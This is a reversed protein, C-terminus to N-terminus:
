LVGAAVASATVFTDLNESWESEQTTVLGVAANNSFPLGGSAARLGPPVSLGPPPRRSPGIPVGLPALAPSPPHQALRPSGGTGSSLRVRNSGIPGFPPSAQSIIPSPTGSGGGGSAPIASLESVGRAISHSNEALWGSTPRELPHQVRSAGGAGVDAAAPLFSSFSLAGSPTAPEPQGWRSFMSGTRGVHSASSATATQEGGLRFDGRMGQGHGSASAYGSGHGNHYHQQQHQDLSRRGGSVKHYQQMNNQRGGGGGGGGDLAEIMSAAPSALAPPSPSDVLSSSSSSSRSIGRDRPATSGGAVSGAAAAAAAAGGRLPQGHGHYGQQGARHGHQQNGQSPVGRSSGHMGNANAGRGGGGGSNDGGRKKGKGQEVSVGFRGCEGRSSFAGGVCAQLRKAWAPVRPLENGAGLAAIGVYVAGVLLVIKVLLWARGWRSEREWNRDRDGGGGFSKDRGDVTRWGKAGRAKATASGAARRASKCAAAASPGGSAAALMMISVNGASSAIDLVRGVPDCHTAAYAVAVQVEEGPQLTQAQWRGGGDECRSGMVTFGGEACLAISGAFTVSGEGWAASATGLGSVDGFLLRWFWGATAGFVGRAYAGGLLGGGASGSGGAAAAANWGQIKRIGVLSVTLPMKGDNSLVWKKIVPETTPPSRAWSRFDVAFHSVEEEMVVNFVDGSKWKQGHKTRVQAKKFGFLARPVGGTGTGAGAGAGAEVGQGVSVKRGERAGSEAWPRVSLLGTDAEGELCVPELHTLNNRLYVHASFLGARAPAFRVPGIITSGGPELVVPALANVRVHFAALGGERGSRMSGGGGGATPSMALTVDSHEHSSASTHASTERDTFGPESNGTPPTWVISESEAAALQLSVPVDAPNCVEIFMEQTQGVQTIPFRLPIGDGGSGILARKRKALSAVAAAAVAEDADDISAPDASHTEGFVLRPVVLSVIVSLPADSPGLSTRVNVEEQFSNIGNFVIDPWLSWLEKAARAAREGIIAAPGEGSAAGASGGGGPISGPSGNVAHVGGRGTGFQRSRGRCDASNGNGGGGRDAQPADSNVAIFQRDEPSCAGSYSTSGTRGAGAVTSHFLGGHHQPPQLNTSPDEYIQAVLRPLLDFVDKECELSDDDEDEDDEGDGAAGHWGGVSNSHGGELGLRGARESLCRWANHCHLSANYIVRGVEVPAGHQGDGIDKVLDYGIGPLDRRMLETRVLPGSSVIGHVTGGRQSNTRLSVTAVVSRGPFANELRLRVGVGQQEQEGDSTEGSMAEKSSPEQGELLEEPYEDDDGHGDDEGDDSCYVAEERSGLKSRMVNVKAEGGSAVRDNDPSARPPVHFIVGGQVTNYTVVVPITEMPTSLLLGRVQMQAPGDVVEEPATAAVEFTATAGPVLTCVRSANSERGTGEPTRSTRSTGSPGSGNQSDTGSGGVLFVERYSVQGDRVTERILQHVATEPPMHTKAREKSSSSPATSSAASDGGDRSKGGGGVGGSAAGTARASGANQNAINRFSRSQLHRGIETLAQPARPLPGVAVLVLSAVVPSSGGVSRGGNMVVNTVNVEVPNLNTVNFRRRATAGTRIVGLDVIIPR